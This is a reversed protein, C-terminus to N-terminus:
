RACLRCYGPPKRQFFEWASRNARIARLAAAPLANQRPPGEDQGAKRAQFAALGAPHMRGEAELQKARRINVPSWNSGTRRPTFRQTFSHEDWARRVGDIWGFCLAEDLADPYTVGKPKAHVKYCRLILEQSKDHNRELWARFAAATRFARPSTM